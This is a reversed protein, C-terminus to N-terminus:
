LSTRTGSIVEGTEADEVHEYYRDGRRDINRTVQHVRGTKRFLEKGQQVRQFYASRGSGQEIGRAEISDSVAVKSSLTVRINKGAELGCRPCPGTHSAELPTKCNRCEARREEEM